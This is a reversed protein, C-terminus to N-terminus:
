KTKEKIGELRKQSIAAESTGPFLEIIIRYGKEAETLDGLNLKAETYLFLFFPGRLNGTKIYERAAPTTFELLKQWLHHQYYARVLTDDIALTLNSGPYKKMFERRLREADEIGPPQHDDLNMKILRWYSDQALPTDPFENIIRQYGAMMMPLAAERDGGATMELIEEFIEMSRQNQEEIPLQPLKEKPLAPELVPAPKAEPPAPPAGACSLMIVAALVASMCAALSHRIAATKM